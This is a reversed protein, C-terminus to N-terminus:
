QKWTGHLWSIVLYIAHNMNLHSTLIAINATWTILFCPQINRAIFFFFLIMSTVDIFYRFSNLPVILSGFNNMSARSFIQSHPGLPLGLGLGDVQKYFRKNFIFVFNTVSLELLTESIKSSLGIILFKPDTFLYNLCIEITETLPINTFLNEIDSSAMFLLSANDVATIDKVFSYSNNTTATM